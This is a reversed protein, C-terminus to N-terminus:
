LCLFSHFKYCHFMFRSVALIVTVVSFCDIVSNGAVALVCWVVCVRVCVFVYMCVCVCVSVGARKQM